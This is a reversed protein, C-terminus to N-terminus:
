SGRESRFPMWHFNSREGTTTIFSWPASSSPIRIRIAPSTRFTTISLGSSISQTPSHSITRVTKADEDVLRYEQSRPEPKPAAGKVGTLVALLDRRASASLRNQFATALADNSDAISLREYLTVALTPDDIAQFVPKLKNPRQGGDPGSFPTRLLAMVETEFQQEAMM